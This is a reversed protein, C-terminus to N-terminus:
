ICIMPDPWRTVTVLGGLFPGVLGVLGVDDVLGGLGLGVFGILDLLGSLGELLLNM